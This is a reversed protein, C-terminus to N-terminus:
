ATARCKDLLKDLYGTIEILAHRQSSDDLV